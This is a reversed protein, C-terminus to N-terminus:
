QGHQLRQLRRKRLKLISAPKLYLLFGAVGTVDQEMSPRNGQLLECLDTIKSTRNKEYEITRSISTYINKYPVSKQLLLYSGLMQKPSVQVSNSSSRM